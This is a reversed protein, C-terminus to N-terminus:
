KNPYSSVFPNGKIYFRYPLLAADGSSEVGIRSSVGISAETINYGDSAIYIYDKVLSIGSHVKSIGLAKAANGPGKTLTNDLKQKGTRELMIDIGEMPEVARILVADPKDKENSVINFLHHMGYCIYVYAIGAPAYMHENRATRKGAFSHSARDTLGVYAETEVIRGSTIVSNFKTVIIKGILQNALLVVDTGQYFQVPLKKM